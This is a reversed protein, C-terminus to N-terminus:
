SRTALWRHGPGGAPDACDPATSPITAHPPRRITAPHFRHDQDFVADVGQEKGEDTVEAGWRPEGRAIDLALESDTEQEVLWIM